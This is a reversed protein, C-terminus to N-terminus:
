IATGSASNNITQRFHQNLKNEIAHGVHNAIDEANTAQTQITITGISVSNSTNLNRHANMISASNQSALPISNMSNIRQQAATITHQVGVDGSFVNDGGFLRSTWNVLEKIAQVLIMVDKYMSGFITHNEVFNSFEEWHMYLLGVAASLALVALTIPAWAIIFGASAITARIIAPIFTVGIVTAIGEFFAKIPEKNETFWKGLAVLQPLLETTIGLGFTRLQHELVDLYEAWEKAAQGDEDQIDGLAHMEGILGSLGAQGKQLLRIMGEDLQMKRGFGFSEQKSMHEFAGALEWLLQTVPKVHGQADMMNIKLEDFFPKVRSHGTADVQALSGSLARISDVAGESSGGIHKVADAWAGLNKTSIGLAEGTELIHKAYEANKFAGEFLHGVAFIGALAGAAETALAMFSSGLKASIEETTLLKANLGTTALEAEEAGKKVKSADSDFLIFFTELISSM